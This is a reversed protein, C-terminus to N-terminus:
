RGRIRDERHHFVPRLALAGKMDRWGREVATLQKYATALDEGTLTLDDTRLLGSATWTRRASSRRPTSVCCGPPLAACIAACGPSARSAASSSMGAAPRGAMRAM